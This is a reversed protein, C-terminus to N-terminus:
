IRSWMYTDINSPAMGDIWHLMRTKGLAFKIVQVTRHPERGEKIPLQSHNVELDQKTKRHNNNPQRRNNERGQVM